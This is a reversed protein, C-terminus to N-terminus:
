EDDVGLAARLRREHVNRSGNPIRRMREIAEPDDLVGLVWARRLFPLPAPLIERAVQLAWSNGWMAYPEPFRREIEVALAEIAERPILSDPM